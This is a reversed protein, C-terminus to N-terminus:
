PFELYKILDQPTRGNRSMGKTLDQSSQIGLHLNNGIAPTLTIQTKSSMHKIAASIKILWQHNNRIIVQYCKGTSQNQVPASPSKIRGSREAQQRIQMEDNAYEYKKAYEYKQKTQLRPLQDSFHIGCYSVWLCIVFWYDNRTKKKYIVMDPQNTITINMTFLM